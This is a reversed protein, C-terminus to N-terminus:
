REYYCAMETKKTDINYILAGFKDIQKIMM